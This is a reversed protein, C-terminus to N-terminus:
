PASGKQGLTLARLRKLAEERKRLDEQLTANSAKGEAIERQLVVFNLLAQRMLRTYPHVNLEKPKVQRLNKFAQEAAQPDYFPTRPLMNMYAIAIGAEWDARESSEVQQYRAFLTMAETYEGDLLAEYGKDLYSSSGQLSLNCDCDGPQTLNLQLEPVPEPGTPAAIVATDASPPAVAGSDSAATDAVPVATCAQLTLALCALLSVTIPKVLL